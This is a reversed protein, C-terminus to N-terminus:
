ALFMVVIKKPPPCWLKVNKFTSKGASNAQLLMLVTVTKSPDPPMNERFIKSFKCEIIAM